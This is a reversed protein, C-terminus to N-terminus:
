LLVEKLIQENNRLREELFELEQKQRDADAEKMQKETIIQQLQTEMGNIHAAVYKEMQECVKDCQSLYRSKLNNEVKINQQALQQRLQNRWLLKYDTKPGSGFLGGLFSGALGYLIFGLVGAGAVAALALGTYFGFDSAKSNDNSAIDSLFFSQEYDDAKVYTSPLNNINSKDIDSNYVEHLERLILDLKEIAKNIQGDIKSKEMNEIRQILSNQQQAVARKINEQLDVTTQTQPDYLDICNMAAMEVQRLGDRVNLLLEDTYNNLSVNLMKTIKETRYKANSFLPQMKNLKEIVQVTSKNIADKKLLIIEDMANIAVQGNGVYKELKARGKESFLFKTLEDEFTVFGTEELSAPKDRLLKPSLAEGNENRRWLLAQKGSVYFIPPLKIGPDLHKKLHEKVYEVLELEKDAGVMDKFNIVVFFNKIQNGCIQEKLFAIESSSLIQQASLLLIAADANKLFGYTIEVRTESLDNVGPTDIIEVNNKCFDLPYFVHAEKVSAYWRDIEEKAQLAQLDQDDGVEKSAKLKLFKEEELTQVYGNTFVLEYKPRDGYSIKSIIATTPNVSSPLIRKGLMANIFTSKGRSFEGVVVLNFTENNLRSILEEIQIAQNNEGLIRAVKALDNFASVAESKKQLYLEQGSVGMQEEM